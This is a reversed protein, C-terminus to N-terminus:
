EGGLLGALVQVLIDDIPSKTAAAKKRLESVMDKLAQRLEPTAASLLRLIIVVVLGQWNM